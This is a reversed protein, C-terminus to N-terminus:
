FAGEVVSNLPIRKAVASRLRRSVPNGPSNSLGVRERAGEGLIGYGWGPMLDLINKGFRLQWPTHTPNRQLLIELLLEGSRRTNGAVEGFLRILDKGMRFYDAGMKPMWTQVGAQEPVLSNGPLGFGIITKAVLPLLEPNGEIQITTMDRYWIMHLTERRKVLTTMQAAVPAAPKLLGSILGYFNDTLYEQIIGFVTLELPNKGCCHNYHRGQVEQMDRRLDEESFGLACLMWVFIERHTYEDPVWVKRNFRSLWPTDHQTAGEEFVLAYSDTACETLMALRLIGVLDDKSLGEPLTAIVEQMRLNKRAEEWEGLPVFKGPNREIEAVLSNLKATAASPIRYVQEM